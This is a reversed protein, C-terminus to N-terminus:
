HELFQTKSETIGAYKCGLTTSWLYIFDAFEFLRLKFYWLNVSELQLSMPNSFKLKHCLSM